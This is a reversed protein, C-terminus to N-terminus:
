WDLHKKTLWLQLSFCELLSNLFLHQHWLPTSSAPLQKELIRSYRQSELLMEKIYIHGNIIGTLFHTLFFSPHSSLGWVGLKNILRIRKGVASKCCHIWSHTITVTKDKEPVPPGASPGVQETSRQVPRLHSYTTPSAAAEAFSGGWRNWMM